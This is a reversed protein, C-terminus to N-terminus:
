GYNLLHVCKALASNRLDALVPRQFMIPLAMGWGSVLLRSFCCGRTLPEATQDVGRPPGGAKTLGSSASRVPMPVPLCQCHASATPVPLASVEPESLLSSSRPHSSYLRLVVTHVRLAAGSGGASVPTMM